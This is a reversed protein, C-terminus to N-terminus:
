IVSMDAKKTQLMGKLGLNYLGGKGKIAPSSIMEADVLRKIAREFSKEHPIHSAKYWTTFTAGSEAFSSSFVDFAQQETTSLEESKVKFIPEICDEIVGSQTDDELLVEKFQLYFKDFPAADKQKECTLAIASGKKEMFIMTDVAGRLISSGREVRKDKTLHHIL